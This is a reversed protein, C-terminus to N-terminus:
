AKSQTTGFTAMLELLFAKAKRVAPKAEACETTMLVYQGFSMGVDSARILQGSAVDDEVLGEGILMAGAGARVALILVRPDEQKTLNLPTTDTMGVTKLWLPWSTPRTAYMLHQDLLIELPPVDPRAQLVKPAVYPYVTQHSLVKTIPTTPRELVHRIAIDADGNNLNTVSLSSEIVIEFGEMKTAWELSYFRKAFWQHMLLPEIALKVVTQQTSKLGRTTAEIQDFIPELERQFHLGEETLQMSRGVRQFLTVGFWDELNRVHRVVSTHVVELEEAAHSFNSHRAAAEFARLANLPPLDRSM